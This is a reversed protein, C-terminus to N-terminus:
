GLPTLGYGLIVTLLIIWLFIQVLIHDKLMETTVYGAPIHTVNDGQPVLSSEVAGLAAFGAGVTSVFGAVGAQFASNFGGLTQAVNAAIADSLSPVGQAALAGSAVVSYPLGLQAALGQYTQTASATVAGTVYATADAAVAAGLDTPINAAGVSDRICM